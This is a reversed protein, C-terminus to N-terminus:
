SGSDISYLGFALAATLGAAATVAWPNYMPLGYPTFRGGIPVARVIQAAPQAVPPGTGAAWVRVPVAGGEAEISYVGGRLGGIAFHGDADTISSALEEHNRLVVVQTNPSPNGTPDRVVGQLDGGADLEVDSVTQVTRRSGTWRSDQDEAKACLGTLSMVLVSLMALIRACVSCALSNLM